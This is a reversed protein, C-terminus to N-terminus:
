TLIRTGSLRAEYTILHELARRLAADRLGADDVARGDVIFSQLQCVELRIEDGRFLHDTFAKKIRAAAQNGAGPNSYQYIRGALDEAEGIHVAQVKNGSVIVWRYLAPRTWRARLSDSAGVPFTVQEGSDEVPVWTWAAKLELSRAEGNM